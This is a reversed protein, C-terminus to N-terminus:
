RSYRILCKTDNFGSFLVLHKMEMYGRSSAVTLIWKNSCTKITMESCNLTKNAYIECKEPANSQQQSYEGYIYTIVHAYACVITCRHSNANEYHQATQHHFFLCEVISSSHAIFNKRIRFECFILRLEWMFVCVFIDNTYKQRKGMIIFRWGIGYSISLIGAHKIIFDGFEKKHYWFFFNNYSM